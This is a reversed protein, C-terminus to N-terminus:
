ALALIVSARLLEEALFFSYYSYALNCASFALYNSSNALYYSADLFTVFEVDLVSVGLEL